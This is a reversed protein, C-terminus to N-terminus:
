TTCLCCYCHFLLAVHMRGITHVVNDVHSCAEGHCPDALQLSPYVLTSLENFTMGSKTQGGNTSPLQLLCEMPSEPIVYVVM